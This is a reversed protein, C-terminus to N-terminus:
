QIKPINFRRLLTGTEERERAVYAAFEPATTVDPEILQNVLFETLKPEKIAEGVVQNVRTIVDDPTEAPAFLGMWTHIPYNGRGAEAYIPVDPLLPSRRAGDIAVIRGKSDNPNDAWSGLATWTMQIEGSALAAILENSGKYAVEVLPTNWREALYQRFVNASSAPGYTGFNFEGPKALTLRRLDDITKVGLKPSAILGGIFQGLNIIPKFDKAGDYPLKEILHPNFTVTSTTFVCLTYGDGKAHRCAEAAPIFNAGPKNEMIWPQGMRASADAAIRRAIVDTLGGATVPVLVHIPKNPYPQARASASVLAFVVVVLGIRRLFRM